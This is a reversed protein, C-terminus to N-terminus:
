GRRVDVCGRHIWEIVEERCEILWQCCLLLWDALRRRWDRRWNHCWTGRGLHRRRRHGSLHHVRCQILDNVGDDGLLGRRLLWLLLRMRKIHKIVQIGVWVCIRTPRGPSISLEWNVQGLWTRWRKRGKRLSICEGKGGWKVHRECRL